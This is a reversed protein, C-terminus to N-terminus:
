GHQDSSKAEQCFLFGLDDGRAKKVSKRCNPLVGWVESRVREREEDHWAYLLQSVFLCVFLGHYVREQQTEGEM